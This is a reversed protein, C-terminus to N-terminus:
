EGEDTVEGGERADDPGGSEPDKRKKRVAEEGARASTVGAGTLPSTM